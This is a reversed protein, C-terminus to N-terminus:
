TKDHPDTDTNTPRSNTGHGPLRDERDHYQGAGDRQSDKAQAPDGGPHLRNWAHDGGREHCHSHRHEDPGECRGDDGRIDGRRIVRVDKLPQTALLGM